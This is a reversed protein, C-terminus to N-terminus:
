PRARPPHPPRDRHHEAHYEEERRANRHDADRMLHRPERGGLFREDTLSSLFALLDAREQATLMFGRIFPSKGPHARGDGPRPGASLVRGGAEYFDIVDSLIDCFVAM